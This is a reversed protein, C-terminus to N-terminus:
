QRLAVRFQFDVRVEGILFDGLRIPPLHAAMMRIFQHGVSQGLRHRLHRLFFGLAYLLGILSDARRAAHSSPSSSVMAIIIEGEISDASKERRPSSTFATSSAPASQIWKSTM